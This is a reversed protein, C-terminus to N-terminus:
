KKDESDDQYKSLDIDKLTDFANPSEETEKNALYEEETMVKYNEGEPYTESKKVLRIPLNTIILSYITDELDIYNEKNLIIDEKLAAYSERNTFCLTDDLKLKYNFPENTLSSLVLLNATIKFRVICLEEVRDVYIKGNISNFNKIVTSKNMDNYIKSYGKYSFSEKKNINFLSLRM